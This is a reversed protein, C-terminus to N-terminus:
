FRSYRRTARIIHYIFFGSSIRMLFDLFGLWGNNYSPSKHAPNLMYFYDSVAEGSIENPNVTFYYDNFGLLVMGLYLLAGIGFFLLVPRVWSQGFDSVLKDVILLVKDWFNLTGAKTKSYEMFEVMENRFFANADVINANKKSLFKLQRYVEKKSVMFDEDSYDDPKKIPLVNDIGWKVNSYSLNVLNSKLLNFNSCQSFDVNTFYFNKFDVRELDVQSDKAFLVSSLNISGEDIKIDNGKWAEQINVKNLLLSLNSSLFYTILIDVKLVKQSRASELVINSNDYTASTFNILRYHGGVINLFKPAVGKLTFTDVKIISLYIMSNNCDIIEFDQIFTSGDSNILFDSNCEILLVKGTFTCNTFIIKELDVNQLILDGNFECDSFDLFSGKIDRFILPNILTNSTFKCDSFRLQENITVNGLLRFDEIDVFRFSINSVNLEKNSTFNEPISLDCYDLINRNNENVCLKRIFEEDSIKKKTMKRM